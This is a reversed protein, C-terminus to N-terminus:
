TRVAVVECAGYTERRPAEASDNRQGRHIQVRFELSNPVTQPAKSVQEADRSWRWLRARSKNMRRKWALNVVPISDFGDISEDFLCASAKGLALTMREADEQAIVASIGVIM